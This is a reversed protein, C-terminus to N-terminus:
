ALLNHELKGLIWQQHKRHAFLGLAVTLYMFIYLGDLLSGKQYEGQAIEMLPQGKILEYVYVFVLSAVIGLAVFAFTASEQYKARAGELYLLLVPVLMLMVLVDLIRILFVLVAAKLNVELTDLFSPMGNALVGIALLLTAGMVPIGWKGMTTVGVARLISVCAAFLMLYTTVQWAILFTLFNDALAKALQEVLPATSVLGYLLLFAALFLFARRLDARYMMAVWLSLLCGVLLVGPQLLKTYSSAAEGSLVVAIAAPIVALPLAIALFLGSTM